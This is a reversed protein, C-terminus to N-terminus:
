RWGSATLSPITPYRFFILNSRAAAIAQQERTMGLDYCAVMCPRSEQVSQHLMLLGPFYNEDCLTIIGFDALM